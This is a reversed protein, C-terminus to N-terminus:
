KAEKPMRDWILNRIDKIFLNMAKKGRLPTKRLREWNKVYEKNDFVFMVCEKFNM